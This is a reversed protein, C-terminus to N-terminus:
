FAEVVVPCMFHLVGCGALKEGEGQQRQGEGRAMRVVEWLVGGVVALVGVDGVAAASGDGDEVGDIDAYVTFQGNALVGDCDGGTGGAVFDVDDVRAAFGVAREGHDVGFVVGDGGGNGEMAM